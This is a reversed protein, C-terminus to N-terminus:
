AFCNRHKGWRWTWRSRWSLSRQKWLRLIRRTNPNSQWRWSMWNRGWIKTRDSSNPVSVKVVNLAAGNQLSSWMWRTLRFLCCLMMCMKLFLVQVMHSKYKWTLLLLDKIVQLMSKKLRDNILESNCQEEELEEELQAIRAELRRREEAIQASTLM